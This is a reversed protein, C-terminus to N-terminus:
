NEETYGIGCIITTPSPSPEPTPTPEVPFPTGTYGKREGFIGFSDGSMFRKRNTIKLNFLGALTLFDICPQCVTLEQLAHTDAVIGREQNYGPDLAIDGNKWMYQVQEMIAYQFNEKQFPSLHSWPVVRFTHKDVWAMLRKEIRFLFINVNNSTNDGDRLKDSLNMGTYEMFMDETVFQPQM